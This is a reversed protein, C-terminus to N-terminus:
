NYKPQKDQLADSKIKRLQYFMFFYASWVGGFLVCIVIILTPPAYPEWLARPFPNKDVALVTGWQATANSEVNGYADNDEIRAIVVVNGATDGPIDKPFVLIAQGHEDTTAMNEEKVPLIGFTRQVYFKVEVDKIPKPGENGISTVIARAYNISDGAKLQLSLNVESNTIKEEVDEYLSDKEIKAIITFHYEADMPMDKPLDINAMGKKDTCVSQLLQQGSSNQLYFYIHADSGIIHKDNKTAIVSVMATKSLDAKKHFSLQITAELKGQISSTDQAFSLIVSGCVISAILGFTGLFYTRSKLLAIFNTKM